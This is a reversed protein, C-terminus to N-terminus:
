GRVGPAAAPASLQVHLEALVPRHDSLSLAPADELAMYRLVAVPARSTFLVRDTWAPARRQSYRRPGGAGATGTGVRLKYTPAFELPAEAYCGFARGAARERGLQDGEVLAGLQGTAAATCLQARSCPTADVRYNLDGLWVVVDHRSALPM